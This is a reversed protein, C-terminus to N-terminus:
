SRELFAYLRDSQKNIEALIEERMKRDDEVHADFKKELRDLLDTNNRSRGAQTSMWFIVTVGMGVMTLLVGVMALMNALTFQGQMFSTTAWASVSFAGLISASLIISTIMRAM